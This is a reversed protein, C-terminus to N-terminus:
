LVFIKLNTLQFIFSSYGHQSKLKLLLLYYQRAKIGYHPSKSVFPFRLYICLLGLVCTGNNTVQSNQQPLIKCKVHGVIVKNKTTSNTVASTYVVTDTPSKMCHINTHLDIQIFSFDYMSCIKLWVQNQNELYM